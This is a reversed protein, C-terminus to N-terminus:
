VHGVGAKERPRLMRDTVENGHRHRNRAMSFTAGTGRGIAAGDPRAFVLRVAAGASSAISGGGIGIGAKILARVREDRATPHTQGESM